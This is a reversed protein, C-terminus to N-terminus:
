GPRTLRSGDNRGLSGPATMGSLFRGHGCHRVRAEGGAEGGGEDGGGGERGSGGAGGRLPGVVQEVDDLEEGVALHDEAREGVDLRARASGDLHRARLGVVDEEVHLV